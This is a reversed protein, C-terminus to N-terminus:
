NNSSQSQSQAQQDVPQSELMNSGLLEISMYVPEKAPSDYGFGCSEIDASVAYVCVEFEGNVVVDNPYNLEFETYGNDVYSDHTQVWKDFQFTDIEVTQGALNSNVTLYVKLGKKSENSGFVDTMTAITVTTVLVVMLGTM